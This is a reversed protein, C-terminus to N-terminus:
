TPFNKSLPSFSDFESDSEFANYLPEFFDQLIKTKGYNSYISKINSIPNTSNQLPPNELIDLILRNRRFSIYKKLTTYTLNNRSHSLFGVFYILADIKAKSEFYEASWYSNTKNKIYNRTNDILFSVMELSIIQPKEEENETKLLSMIADSVILKIDDTSIEELIEFSLSVDNVNVDEGYLDIYVDEVKRKTNDM